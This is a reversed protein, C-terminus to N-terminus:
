NCILWLSFFLLYALWFFNFIRWQIGPAEIMFLNKQQETLMNIGVSLFHKQTLFDTKPSSVLQESGRIDTMKSLSVSVILHKLQFRHPNKTKQNQKPTKQHKKKKLGCMM